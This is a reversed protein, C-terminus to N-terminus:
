GQGRKDLDYLGESRRLRGSIRQPTARGLASRGHYGVSSSRKVVRFSKRDFSAQQAVVRRLKELDAFKTIEGLDHSGMPTKQQNAVQLMAGRVQFDLVQSFSLHQNKKRERL